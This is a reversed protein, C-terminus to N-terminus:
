ELWYSYLSGNRLGFRLAVMKGKLHVLDGQEWKVEARPFDGATPASAALVQTDKALVEVHLQGGSADLNVFLNGGSVTFPKTVVAGEEDGADLSIFGDRRLVALCVAGHDPELGAVPIHEGHPYEGVYEFTARYKLGTYYFWLEEGHVVANSPGIIQTLDYAGAGLPSPGLFPKRDGLRHWTKLDRSCALQVLHFGDTNPYNPIPGTAHFMAPTGIYLGEYRFVGMNYVDVNYVAPDNHFPQQLHSDALRAKINERGLEQDLEDAHFILGHDTWNQFDTSTALCVSRDYPGGRKVTLIFLGEKESFSFNGEDSSPVPPVDLKKWNLGDASVAFGKKLLAAKYRRDPDADTPDYVAMQVDLNQKGGAVWHLADRSVRVPDSTGLVWTKFLGEQPDWVPATRTQITQAPDASRIVAGRKVPQHMTRTLNEIRAIGVDDLFLQREGLPVEFVADSDEDAMAVGGLLVALAGVLVGAWPSRVARETRGSVGNCSALQGPRLLPAQAVQPGDGPKPTATRGHRLRPCERDFHSLVYGCEACQLM